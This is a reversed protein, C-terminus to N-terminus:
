FASNDRYQFSAYKPKRGSLWLYCDYLQAPCRHELFMSFTNLFRSKKFSGGPHRVANPMPHWLLLPYAITEIDGWTLKRLTGTAVHYVNTKEPRNDLFLFRPPGRCIIGQGTFPRGFWASFLWGSANSWFWYPPEIFLTQESLRVSVRSVLSASVRLLRM